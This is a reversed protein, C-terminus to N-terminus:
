KGMNKSVGKQFGFRLDKVFIFGGGINENKFYLVCLVCEDFIGFHVVFKTCGFASFLGLKVIPIEV